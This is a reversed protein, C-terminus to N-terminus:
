GNTDLTIIYLVYNCSESLWKLRDAADVGSVCRKALPWEWGYQVAQGLLKQRWDQIESRIEDFYEALAAEEM